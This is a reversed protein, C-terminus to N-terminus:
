ELEAGCHPCYYYSSFNEDARIVYHCVSCEHCNCGVDIWRGHVPVGAQCQSCLIVTHSKNPNFFSVSGKVPVKKGCKDCTVTQMTM